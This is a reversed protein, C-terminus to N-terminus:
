LNTCLQDCSRVCIYHFAKRSHSACISRMADALYTVPQIQSTAIPVTSRAWSISTCCFLSCTTLYLCLRICRSILEGFIMHLLSAYAVLLTIAGPLSKAHKPEFVPVSLHPAIALFYISSYLVAPIGWLAIMTAFWAAIRCGVSLETTM